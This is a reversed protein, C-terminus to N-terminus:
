STQFYVFYESNIVSWNLQLRASPRSSNRVQVFSHRRDNDEEGKGAGGRTKIGVKDDDKNTMKKKKGERRTRKGKKSLRKRFMIEQDQSFSQFQFIIVVEDSTLDTCM